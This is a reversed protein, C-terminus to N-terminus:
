AAKERPAVSSAGSLACRQSDRENKQARVLFQRGFIRWAFPLRLYMKILLGTKPLRSRTTYPLFQTAGIRRACRLHNLFEGYGCGLDLVTDDASVWQQFFHEQEGAQKLSPRRTLAITRM